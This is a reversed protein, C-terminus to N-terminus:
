VRCAPSANRIAPSPHAPGAALGFALALSLAAGAQAHRRLLTHVCAGHPLLRPADLQLAGAGGHGLLRDSGGQRRAAVSPRFSLNARAAPRHPQAGPAALRRRAEPSLPAAYRRGHCQTQLAHARVDLAAEAPLREVASFDALPTSSLQRTALPARATAAPRLQCAVCWSASWWSRSEALRTALCFSKSRTRAKRMQRPEHGAPRTTLAAPPRPPPAPRCAGLSGNPGIQSSSSPGPAQHIVKKGDDGGEADAM